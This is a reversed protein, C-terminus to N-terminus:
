NDSFSQQVWDNGNWILTLVDNNGLVIAGSMSNGRRVNIQLWRDAGNFMGAGFDLLVTFLGDGVPLDNILVANTLPTGGSAIDFLSFQFDYGGHASSGNDTLRGQYTFATGQTHGVIISAALVLNILLLKSKM